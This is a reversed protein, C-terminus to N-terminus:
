YHVNRNLSLLALKSAKGFTLFTRLLSRYESKNMFFPPFRRSSKRRALRKSTVSQKYTCQRHKMDQHNGELRSNRVSHLRAPYGGNGAPTCFADATERFHELSSGQARFLLIEMLGRHKDILSVYEDICSKLYEESRMMMIDEGRIGHHEQLMAELAHLVPRVVERFLEDKNTFYNYINGVGIGALEAIERMSAKSYGKLGFQQRAVTLIRGRIDEKLVQM